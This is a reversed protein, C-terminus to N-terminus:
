ELGFGAYIEHEESKNEHFLNKWYNSDCCLEQNSMTIQPRQPFRGEKLTVTMNKVIEDPSKNENYTNLFTWTMAGGYNGYKGDGTWADASTQTDKCGSIALINCKLQKKNEKVIKKGDEKHYELDLITGSHCCDMLCFCNVHEPLKNTFERALMDDSIIQNDVTYIVEDMGDDEDGSRDAMKTGHGSYHVVIHTCEGNQAEEVMKKLYKMINSKTPFEYKGYRKDDTLVTVEYGHKELHDRMNFADAACGNLSWQSGVYNIGICLGKRTM